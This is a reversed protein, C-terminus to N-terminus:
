KYYDESDVLPNYVTFWGYKDKADKLKNFLEPSISKRLGNTMVKAEEDDEYFLPAIIGMINDIEDRDPLYMYVSEFMVLEKATLECIPKYCVGYLIAKKETM